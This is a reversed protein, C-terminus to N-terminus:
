PGITESISQLQRSLRIRQLWRLMAQNSFVLVRSEYPELNLAIRNSTGARSSEGTFPDWWEANRMTTRFTATASIERNGNNALFYIEAFPLKRHVFGLDSLEPSVAVDPTLHQALGTSLEREDAVFVGKGGASQFLERSIECVRPSDKAAQLMGPAKSPLSGTAIVTGGKQAYRRIPEYTAVPLREIHPLVLVRYPIGVKAIAQDDILDFSFGAHLIQPIVNTGLSREAVESLADNGPTFKAWADDTPLLVAVDKAPEGQRLMYSIRQLYTTLEPMVPWWPNHDNFDVSTKISFQKKSQMAMLDPLFSSPRRTFTGDSFMM